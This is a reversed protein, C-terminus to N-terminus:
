RYVRVARAFQDVYGGGFLVVHVLLPYLQYFALRENAEEALPSENAYADFTSESFGGFLRLMALDIERHGGYVAPDILVAEGAPGVMVNGSWLDGHLRAPAEEPGCLADFRGLLQSAERAVGAPLHGEDMARRVLPEIRRYAYFDPWRECAENAQPLSGIFNDEIFGFSDAGFAHLHALGAGLAEDFDRRRTGAEIWDLVLLPADESIAAVRVTALAGAEELWRLGRAEAQVLGEPGDRYHKVFHVEGSVLQVRYSDGISGGGIAEAEALPAPLLADLHGRIQTEM